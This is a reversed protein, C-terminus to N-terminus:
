TFNTIVADYEALTDKWVKKLKGATWTGHSGPNIVTDGFCHICIILKTLLLPVMQSIQPSDKMLGCIYLSGSLHSIGLLVRMWNLRLLLRRVRQQQNM